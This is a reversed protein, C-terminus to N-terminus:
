FGTVIMRKFFLSTNNFFDTLTDQLSYHKVEPEGFTEAHLMKFQVTLEDKSTFCATGHLTMNFPLGKKYFYLEAAFINWSNELVPFHSVTFQLRNDPLVTINRAFGVPIRQSSSNICYFVAENFLTIRDLEMDPLTNIM